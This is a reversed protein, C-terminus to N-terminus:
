DDSMLGSKANNGLAVITGNKIGEDIKAQSWIWHKGVPPPLVGREGFRRPEGQGVQTFSDDTYRRGDADMKNYHSRILEESYGIYQKQHYYGSTKSYFLITDHINGFTDAQKKAAKLKQWIIENRFNEPAFVEDMIMRLQHARHWDCHLYISGSDSLLERLLILREYMFQLYEDNSWIDTYQKEEFNNHDNEIKKGRLEITKKYDAKSDFPPDIYILDIANRYQKLMHSMVQVNDGWFIANLWGDVEDGHQEKNQAPFYSTSNFPRKGRWKLEPQGKIPAFRFDSVNTPTKGETKIDLEQQNM